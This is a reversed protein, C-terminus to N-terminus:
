QDQDTKLASIEKKARELRRTLLKATRKSAENANSHKLIWRILDAIVKVPDFDNAHIPDLNRRYKKEIQTLAEFYEKSVTEQTIDAYRLTMHYDNQGLRSEWPNM